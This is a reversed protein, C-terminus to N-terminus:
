IEVFVTLYIDEYAGCLHQASLQGLSQLVTITKKYDKLVQLNKKKKKAPNRM